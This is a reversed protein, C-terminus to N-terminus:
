ISIITKLLDVTHHYLGRNENNIPRLSGVHMEVVSAKTLRNIARTKETPMFSAGEYGLEGLKKRKKPPGPTPLQKCFNLLKTLLYTFYTLSLKNYM